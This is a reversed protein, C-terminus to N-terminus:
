PQNNSGQEPAERVRVKQDAKWCFSRRAAATSKRCVLGIAYNKSNSRDAAPDILMALLGRGM